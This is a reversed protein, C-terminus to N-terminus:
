GWQEAMAKAIGPFTKSRAKATRPDNWGLIKGNEDRAASSSAGVNYKRGSGTKAEQFEGPDVVNTPILKPLNKLWLCTTKMAHHGFQYPQIIQDAKRYATGMIGVPNEIAIKKCDAAVFRMFFVAGEVRDKWRQEAKKGYRETNFWANGSVTLYTCPPHAILLDWQGDIHIWQGEETIFTCNGNILPICDGKIHWEPHGGSCKQIDCSYAEHGKERFAKCVAQSEECAVLVKM